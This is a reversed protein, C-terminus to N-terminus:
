RSTWMMFLCNKSKNHLIEQTYEETTQQAKVAVSFICCFCLIICLVGMKMQTGGISIGYSCRFSFNISTSFNDNDYNKGALEIKSAISSQGADICLQMGFQALYAIGTVKLM